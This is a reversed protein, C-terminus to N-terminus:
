QAAISISVPVDFSATPLDAIATPTSVIPAGVAAGNTDIMQASATYTDAAVDTFTAAYPTGATQPLITQSPIAAAGTASNILTVVLGGFATASQYAPNNQTAVTVIVTRTM